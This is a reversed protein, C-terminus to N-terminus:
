RVVASPIFRLRSKRRRALGSARAMAVSTASTFGSGPLGHGPYAYLKFDMIDYVPAPLVMMPATFADLKEAYEDNFKTWTEVLKDYDYMVTKGNVGYRGEGLVSAMIYVPVRDPEQVKYVDILRQMRIHYNKEAEPNDFKVGKPKLLLEFRKERKQEPTLKAWNEDVFM